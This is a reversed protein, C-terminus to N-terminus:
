CISAKYINMFANFQKQILPPLPLSNGALIPAINVRGIANVSPYIPAAYLSNAAPDTEWGKLNPIFPDLERIDQLSFKLVSVAKVFSFNPSDKLDFTVM